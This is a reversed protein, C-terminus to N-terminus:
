TKELLKRLAKEARDPDCAFSRGLRRILESISGHGPVKPSTYGLRVALDRVPAIEEPTVWISTHRAM